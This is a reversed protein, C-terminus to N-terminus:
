WADVVCQPLPRKLFFMHLMERQAAIKMDAEEGVIIEMEFLSIQQIFNYSTKLKSFM